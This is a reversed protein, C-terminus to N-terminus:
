GPGGGILDAHDLYGAVAAAPLLVHRVLADDRDGAKEGIAIDDTDRRSVPATRGAAPITSHSVSSPRCEARQTCIVVLAAITQVGLMTTAFGYPWFWVWRSCIAALAIMQAYTLAAAIGTLVAVAALRARRLIRGLIKNM